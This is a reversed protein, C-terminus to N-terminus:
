DIQKTILKGRTALMLIGLIITGLIWIFWGAAAIMGSGLVVGAECAADGACEAGVEAGSTFNVYILLIMIIQFLWFAIQWFRGFFGRKHTTVTTTM